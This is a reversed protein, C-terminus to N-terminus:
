RSSSSRVRRQALLVLCCWRFLNGDLLHVLPLSMRRPTINPRAGPKRRVLSVSKKENGASDANEHVEAKPNQCPQKRRQFNIPPISDFKIRRSPGKATLSQTGSTAM